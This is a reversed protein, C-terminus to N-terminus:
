AIEGRVTRGGTPSSGLASRQEELFLSGGWAAYRAAAARDMRGEAVARRVARLEEHYEVGEVENPCVDVEDLRRRQVRTVEAKIDAPGIWPQAGGLRGLAAAADQYPVQALVELWVDPTYEDWRQAPCLAKIGRTIQELEHPGM